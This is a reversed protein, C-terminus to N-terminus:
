KQSYVESLPQCEEKAIVEEPTEVKEGTMREYYEIAMCILVSGNDTLIAVPNGYKLLFDDDEIHDCFEQQTITNINPLKM